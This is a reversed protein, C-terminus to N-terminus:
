GKRKGSRLTQNPPKLAQFLVYIPIKVEVPHDDLRFPEYRWHGIARHVEKAFVPDGTVIRIDQVLGEKGVVVVADVRGNKGDLRARLPFEPPDGHLLKGAALGRPVSSGSGILLTPTGTVVAVQSSVDPKTNLAAYEEEATPSATPIALSDKVESIAVPIGRITQDVSQRVAPSAASIALAVGVVAWVVQRQSPRFGILRRGLSPDESKIRSRLADVPDHRTEQRVSVAQESQKEFSTSPAISTPLQNAFSAATSSPSVYESFADRHQSLLALIALVEGRETFPIMLASCFSLPSGATRPDTASDACYVVDATNVCQATLISNGNIVTGVPPASGLSVKCTYEGRERVIIGAGDAGSRKCNVETVYQLYAPDLGAICDTLPSSAPNPVLASTGISSLYRYAAGDMEPSPDGDAINPLADRITNVPLTAGLIELGATGDEAQWRTQVSFRSRELGPLYLVADQERDTFLRFPSVVRLGRRSIDLVQLSSSNLLAAGTVPRRMYVRRDPVWGLFAGSGNHAGMEMFMGKNVAGMVRWPVGKSLFRLQGIRVM